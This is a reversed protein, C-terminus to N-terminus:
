SMPFLNRQNRPVKLIFSFGSNSKLTQPQLLVSYYCHTIQHDVLEWSRAKFDSIYLIQFLKTGQNASIKYRM